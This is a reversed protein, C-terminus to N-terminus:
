DQRDCEDKPWPSSSYLKQKLSIQKKEVVRIRRKPGRRKEYERLAKALKSGATHSVFFVAVIAVYGRDVQSGQSPTPSTPRDLKTVM